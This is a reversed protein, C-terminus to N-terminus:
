SRHEVVNGGFIAVLAPALMAVACSFLAATVVVPIEAFSRRM